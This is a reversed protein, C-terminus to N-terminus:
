VSPDGGLMAVDVPHAKEKRPRGVKRPPKIPPPILSLVIERMTATTAEDAGQVLDILKQIDSRKRM